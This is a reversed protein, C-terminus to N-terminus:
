APTGAKLQRPQRGYGAMLSPLDVAMGVIVMSVLVVASNAIGLPGEVPSLLISALVFTLLLPPTALASHRAGYASWGAAFGWILVYIVAGALGFDIFAAAWVTPFFGFVGTSKLETNMSALLQNQPFFVRLIPSLVGIEYAGWQPSFQARARWTIDVIRVGHTLYFYSSLSSVVAGPPLHGSEIVSLMYGRPSVHWAEQMIALLTAVDASHQATDPSVKREDVMKNLDATSVSDASKQADAPPPISPATSANRGGDIVAGGAPQSRQGGPSPPHAAETPQPQVIPARPLDREKMREQLQLILGSMQVCFAQRSSWMASSYAGFLLFVVAMKVLMHHGDPLPRRGEAVRVLVAGVVLVIIFLIPMRGSYIIAYGVPSLISLQALIAVWGRIKEGKLLFLVLSAFGFSFTLYGVYLLPSRKIEIFDVLVPACRLLEAYGGNGIGSLVARDLAILAVGAVGLVSSAAVVVNLLGVPPARLNPRRRLWLGFCRAGAWSAVVFLSVGIAVLALVAMSPQQAYDIPGVAVGTLLVCWVAILLIAPSAFGRVIKLALQM